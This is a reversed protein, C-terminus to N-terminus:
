EREKIEEVEAELETRLDAIVNRTEGAIPARNAAQKIDHWRGFFLNLEEAIDSPVSHDAGILRLAEAVTPQTDRTHDNVMERYMHCFDMLVDNDLDLAGEFRHQDEFVVVNSFGIFDIWMALENVGCHCFPCFEM